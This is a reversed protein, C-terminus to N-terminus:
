VPERSRAAEIATSMMLEVDPEKGFWIRFSEAGQYVLVDLGTIVKSGAREADRLLKTRWPYYILDLVFIDGRLYEKPVPSDDIEPYMGRSTTNILLNTDKLASPMDEWRAAEVRLGRKALAAALDVATEYTRNVLIIKPEFSALGVCAARAAGGAGLITAKFNKMDFGSRSLAENIGKCDTNYGLLRGDENKVTNVAGALKASEDLENMYELIRVKHPMTVNFGLCELCALGRVVSGLNKERVRSALYVADIGEKRLAANQFIPSLSHEVPDGILLLFRTRASIELLM